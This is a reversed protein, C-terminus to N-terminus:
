AAALEDDSVVEHEADMEEDMSGSDQQGQEHEQTSQPSATQSQMEVEEDQTYKLACDEWEPGATQLLRAYNTSPPFWREGRTSAKNGGELAARAARTKRVKRVPQGDQSSVNNLQLRQQELRLDFSAISRCYPGLDETLKRTSIATLRAQRHEDWPHTLIPTLAQELIVRGPPVSPALSTRYPYTVYNYIKNEIDHADDRLELAALTSSIDDTITDYHPIQYAELLTQGDIFNSRNKTPM